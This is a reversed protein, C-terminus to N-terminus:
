KKNKDKHLQNFINDYIKIINKEQLINLTSYKHKYLNEELLTQDKPDIIM